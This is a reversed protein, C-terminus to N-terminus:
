FFAKLQVAGNQIFTLQQGWRAEYALSVQLGNVLNRQIQLNVIVNDGAQLGELMSFGLPSNAEGTFANRVWQVITTIAYSSASSLYNENLFRWTNLNAQEATKISREIGISSRFRENPQYELKPNFLIEQFSFNRNSFNQSINDRQGFNFAFRAIIPPLIKWRINFPHEIKRVEEIGFSLLNASTNTLYSIDWGFKNKSRDFFLTHRQQVFAGLVATDSANLASLYFFKNVNNNLQRRSDYQLTSQISFRTLYRGFGTLQTSFASPNFLISQSVKNFEVRIFDSSPAFIRLYRAEAPFRAPEFEDLEKVGNGNYDIWTHTGTGSPVEIFSFVRRPETGTGSELFTNLMLSSKLWRQQLRIRGTYAAFDSQNVVEQFDIKRYLLSSNVNVHSNWRWDTRVGVGQSRAANQFAQNYVTDDARVISFLELYNAQKYSMRVYPEAYFFQYSGDVLATQISRINREVDTRVGVGLAESLLFRMDGNQRIFSGSGQDGLISLASFRTTLSLFQNKAGVNASVKHRLDSGQNLYSYEVQAKFSTDTELGVSLAALIQNEAGAASPLAWDRQFEVQRVREVTTFTSQMWDVFSHVKLLSKGIKQDLGYKARLALGDTQSPNFSYRNVDKQSVALQLEINGLKEGDFTSRLSSIRLAQPPTLQKVPEYSGQPQGNVPPIWEYVRGNLTKNAQVYNGKGQGVFNFQVRYLQKTSDRSYVFVEGFGPMLVKEYLIEDSTYPVAIATPIRMQNLDTGAQAMVLKEQDTLDQFLTQNRSDSEQYHVLEAQFRRESIGAKAYGITRLYLLTTYQFEVVIRRDRTIPRLATFTIEGANYDIVYDYEQGRTLLQGDIYVRESGSVIIIFLENNNGFLKYPGQNGEQGMFSNRAFIGRSAAGNLEAFLHRNSPHFSRQTSLGVGTVRRDFTLFYHDTNAISYDGAVLKGRKPHSVEMYIRDIDRLQQSYGDPQIPIRNDTISAKISTSDPLTGSIQLDLTSNLVASQNSGIRVARSIAGTRSIGAFDSEFFRNNSKVVILEREDFKDLKTKSTIKKRDLGDVSTLFSDPLLYYTIEVELAECRNWYTFGSDM